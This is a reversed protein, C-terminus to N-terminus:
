CDVFMSLHLALFVWLVSAKIYILTLRVFLFCKNPGWRLLLRFRRTYQRLPPWANIASCCFCCFIANYSAQAFACLGVVTVDSLFIMTVDCCVFTYILFVGNLEMAISRPLSKLGSYLTKFTSKSFIARVRKECVRLGQGVGEQIVSQSDSVFLKSILMKRSVKSSLKQFLPRRKRRQTLSHTLCVKASPSKTEHSTGLNHYIMCVM